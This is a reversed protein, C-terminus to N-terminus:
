ILQTIDTGQDIVALFKRNAKFPFWIDKGCGKLGAQKPKQRDEQRLM